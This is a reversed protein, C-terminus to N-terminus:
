GDHSTNDPPAVWHADAGAGLLLDFIKHLDEQLEILIPESLVQSADLVARMLPPNGATDKANLDAGNDIIRKLVGFARHFQEVASMMEVDPPQVPLARNRGFRTSFIAARIADHLVPV